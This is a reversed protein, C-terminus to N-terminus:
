QATDGLKTGKKTPINFRYTFFLGVQFNTTSIYDYNKWSDTKIVNNLSVAYTVGFDIQPTLCFGWSAYLSFLVPSTAQYIDTKIGEGPLYHIKASTLVGLRYGFDWYFVRGRTGVGVGINVYDLRYKEGVTDMFSAGELSYELSGQIFWPYRKQKSLFYDVTGGLAGFFRFGANDTSKFMMNLTPRIRVGVSLRNEREGLLHDRQRNMQYSPAFPSTQYGGGAYMQPQQQPKPQEKFTEKTGNAYKIMFIDATPKTRTPGDQHSWAKYRVETDSIELIKAQLEDGNRFIILDQAYLTTSGLVLFLLLLLRKM